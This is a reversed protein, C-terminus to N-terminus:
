EGAMARIKAGSFPIRFFPAMLCVDLLGAALPIVGLGALLYGTSGDVGFLGAAILAVGAVIRGIRGAPTQMFRVFPNM